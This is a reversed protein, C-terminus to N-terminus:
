KRHRFSVKKDFGHSEIKGENTQNDPPPPNDILWSQFAYVEKYMKDADYIRHFNFTELFPILMMESPYEILVPQRYKKNMESPKDYVASRYWWYGKHKKDKILIQYKKLGDKDLLKNLERLQDNTHYFQNKYEFVILQRNCIHFIYKVVPNTDKVYECLHKEYRMMDLERRDYVVTKDYGYIGTLYDYYDKWKSIIKM